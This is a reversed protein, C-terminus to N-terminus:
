STKMRGSRALVTDMGNKLINCQKKQVHDGSVKAGEAHCETKLFSVGSPLNAQKRVSGQTRASCGPPESTAQSRPM